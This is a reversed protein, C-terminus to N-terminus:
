IYNLQEQLFFFPILLWTHVSKRFTYPRNSSTMKFLFSKLRWNRFVKKSLVKTSTLTWWSVHSYVNIWVCYGRTQNLLVLPVFKLISAVDFSTMILCLIHHFLIRSIISHLWGKFSLTISLFLLLFGLFVFFFYVSLLSGEHTARTFAITTRKTLYSPFPPPPTRESLELYYQSKVKSKKETVEKETWCPFKNRRQVYLLSLPSSSAHSSHAPM